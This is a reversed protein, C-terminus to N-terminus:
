SCTIFSLGNARTIGFDVEGNAWFHWAIVTPGDVIRSLACIKNSKLSIHESQPPDIGLSKWITGDVYYQSENIAQRENCCDDRNTWRQQGSDGGYLHTGCVMEVKILLSELGCRVNELGCRVNELGLRVSEVGVYSVKWILYSM